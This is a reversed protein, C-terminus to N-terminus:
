GHVRNPIPPGVHKNEIDYYPAGVTGRGLQEDCGAWRSAASAVAITCAGLFSRSAHNAPSRPGLPLAFVNWKM